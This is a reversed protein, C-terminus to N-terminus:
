RIVVQRDLQKQRARYVTGYAGKGIIVPTDFGSPLKM